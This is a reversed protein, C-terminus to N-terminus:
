GWVGAPVNVVPAPTDAPTQPQPTQAPTEVPAPIAQVTIVRPKSRIKNFLASQKSALDDGARLGLAKARKTKQEPTLEFDKMIMRVNILIENERQAATHITGPLKPHPESTKAAIAIRAGDRAARLAIALGIGRSAGTIFLVKDRLTPM